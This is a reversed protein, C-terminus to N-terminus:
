ERPWNMDFVQWKVFERQGNTFKFRSNLLEFHWKM